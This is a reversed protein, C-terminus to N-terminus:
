YRGEERERGSLSHELHPSLACSAAVPQGPLEHGRDLFMNQGDTGCRTPYKSRFGNKEGAAHCLVRSLIWKCVRCFCFM